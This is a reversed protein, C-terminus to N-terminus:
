RERLQEQLEQQATDYGAKFQIYQDTGPPHPCEADFSGGMKGIRYGQLNISVTEPWEGVKFLELQTVLPSELLRLFHGTEKYRQMVDIRDRKTLKRADQLGDVNVGDDTAAKLAAQRRTLAAKLPKRAREVALDAQEVANLHRQRVEDPIDANPFQGANSNHGVGNQKKGKRRKKSSGRAREAM